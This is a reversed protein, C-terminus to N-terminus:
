PVVVTGVEIDYGSVTVKLSYTQGSTLITAENITYVGDSGESISGAAALPIAVTPAADDYFNWKLYDDGAALGTVAVDGSDTVLTAVCGTVAPTSITTSVDELSYFDDDDSYDADAIQVALLENMQEPFKVRITVMEQSILESTPLNVNQTNVFVAEIPYLDDGVDRGIAKTGADLMYFSLQKDSNLALQKITYADVENLKFTITYDGDKTKSYYGDTDFATPEAQDSAFEYVVPTWVIKELVDSSFAPKDMLEQWNAIATADTKAIKNYAGDEKKTSVLGIRKLVKLDIKCGAKGLNQLATNCSTGM